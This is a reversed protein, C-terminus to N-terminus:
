RSDWPDIGDSRVQIVSQSLAHKQLSEQGTEQAERMTARMTGRMRNTVQWEQPHKSAHKYWRYKPPVISYAFTQTSQDQALSKLNIALGLGLGLGSRRPMGAKVPPTYTPQYPSPPESQQYVSTHASPCTQPLESETSASGATMKGLVKRTQLLHALRGHAEWGGDEPRFVNDKTSPGQPQPTSSGGKYMIRLIELQPHQPHQPHQSLASDPSVLACDDSDQVGAQGESGVGTAERAEGGTAEEFKEQVNQDAYHSIRSLAVRAHSSHQLPQMRQMKERGGDGDLLLKGDMCLSKPSVPMLSLSKESSSVSNQAFPHPISLPNSASSNCLANTAASANTTPCETGVLSLAAKPSLQIHVSIPQVDASALLDGSSVGGSSDPTHPLPSHPLPTHPLSGCSDVPTHALGRRCSDLAQSMRADGSATRRGSSVGSLGGCADLPAANTRAIHHRSNKAGVSSSRDKGGGMANSSNRRNCPDVLSPRLEEPVGTTDISFPSSPRHSSCSSPRARSRTTAEAVQDLQESKKVSHLQLASHPRGGVALSIAPSSANNTPMPIRRIRRICDGGVFGGGGIQRPPVRSSHTDDMQYSAHSSSPRRKDQVPAEHIRRPQVSSPRVLSSVLEMKSSNFDSDQAINELNDSCYRLLMAAEAQGVSITSAASSPRIPAAPACIQPDPELIRSMFTEVNMDGIREEWAHFKKSGGPWAKVHDTMKHGSAKSTRIINQGFLIAGKTARKENENLTQPNPPRPPWDFQCQNPLLMEPSLGGGNLM